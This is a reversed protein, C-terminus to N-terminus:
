KIKGTDYRSPKDPNEIIGNFGSYGSFSFELKVGSKNEMFVINAPFLVDRTNNFDSFDMNISYLPSTGELKVLKKLACDFGANYSGTITSIPFTAKGAICRIKYSSVAKQPLDGFLLPLDYWNLGYKALIDSTSGTSYIRNLRDLVILNAEDLYIRAIEISAIIRVSVLLIGDNSYRINATFRRTEGGETMVVRVRDFRFSNDTINKVSVERLFRGTKMDSEGERTAVPRKFVSCSSLFILTLAIYIFRVKYM